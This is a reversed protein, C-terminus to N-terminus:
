LYSLNEDDEYFKFGLRKATKLQSNTNKRTLQEVSAEFTNNYIDLKVLSKEALTKIILSNPDRDM